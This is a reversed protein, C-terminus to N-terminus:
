IWISFKYSFLFFLLNDYIPKFTTYIWCVNRNQVYCDSEDSSQSSNLLLSFILLKSHFRYMWIEHSENFIRILVNQTGGWHNMTAAWLIMNFFTGYLNLILINGFLMKFRIIIFNLNDITSPAYQWQVAQVVNFCFSLCFLFDLTSLSCRSINFNVKMSHYVLSGTTRKTTMMM